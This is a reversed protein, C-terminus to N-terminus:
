RIAHGYVTTFYMVYLIVIWIVFVVLLGIALKRRPKLQAVPKPAAKAQAAQDSKASMQESGRLAAVSKSM